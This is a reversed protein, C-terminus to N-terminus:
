ILINYQPRSAENVAVTELKVSFTKKKLIISFIYMNSTLSNNHFVIYYHPSLPVASKICFLRM